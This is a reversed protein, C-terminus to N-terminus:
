RSPEETVSADSDAHHMGEHGAHGSPPPRHGAHPDASQAPAHAAHSDGATAPAHAAHAAHASHDPAGGLWQLGFWVCALLILTAGAYRRMSAAPRVGGFRQALTGALIMGPLTGAGFAAMTLAARPLSGTAAAVPLMAYVLGCPLFGWLLGAPVARTVRDIPLFRRTLPSMRRWLRLGVRELWGVGGLWGGLRLGAFVLTVLGIAQLGRYAWPAASAPLTVLATLLGLLAYSAIRGGNYACALVLSRRGDRRAAPAGLALAAVIGGCMGLCHLTSLLGASAAMTLTSFVRPIGFCLHATYGRAGHRRHARVLGRNSCRPCPVITALGDPMANLDGAASFGGHM